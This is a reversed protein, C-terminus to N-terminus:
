DHREIFDAVLAGSFGTVGDLPWLHGQAGMNALEVTGGAAQFAEIWAEMVSLPTVNDTTSYYLKIPIHAIAAIVEESSANRDDPPPNSGHAAYVEAAFGARNNTYVDLPDIAPILLQISRVKEPHMSAWVCSSLGGMSAGLMHYDFPAFKGKGQGEALAATELAAMDALFSDNAWKTAMDM